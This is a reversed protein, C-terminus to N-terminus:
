QGQFKGKVWEGEQVRGDTYTYIGQGHRKDNEWGGNYTRVNLPDIYKGQGHRMGDKWEGDYTTGDASTYKGQGHRHGNMFGGKYTDGNSFTLIGQGHWLDDIFGGVYTDITNGEEYTEKGQGHPKGDKWTGDYITDNPYTVKEKGRSPYIPPNIEGRCYPCTTNERDVWEKICRYHFTHGCKTTYEGTKDRLKNYCINCLVEEEAQSGGLQKKKRTRRSKIKRTKRSKRVKRRKSRRTKRSKM